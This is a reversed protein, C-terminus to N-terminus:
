EQIQGNAVADVYKQKPDGGSKIYEDYQKQLKDYQEQEENTMLSNEGTEKLEFIHKASTLNDTKVFREDLEDYTLLLMTEKLFYEEVTLDDNEKYALLGQLRQYETLIDDRVMSYGDKFEIVGVWLAVLILSVILLFVLGSKLLFKKLKKHEKKQFQTKQKQQQMTQDAQNFIDDIESNTNKIQTNAEIM